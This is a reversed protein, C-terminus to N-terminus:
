RARGARGRDLAARASWPAGARRLREGSEPAGAFEETRADESISRVFEIERIWEPEESTARTRGRTGTDPEGVMLSFKGATISSSRSEAIPEAEIAPLDWETRRAASTPAGEGAALGDALLIEDATARLDPGLHGCAADALIARLLDELEVAIEAPTPGSGPAPEGSWLERELAIARDVIAKSRTATARARRM